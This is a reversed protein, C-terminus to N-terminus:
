LWRPVRRTYETFQEGFRAALAREEPEIQFRNIYILFLPLFLFALSNSLYISWGLLLLLFGLYMPNRSLTYVGSCVLSSSAGPILPNVTTGARRFSVVGLISTIAGAIGISLAILHRAPITFGVAPAARASLWMLVTAVVLVAVPPLKLELVRMDIELIYHACSALTPATVRGGM